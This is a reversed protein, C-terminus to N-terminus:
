AELTKSPNNDVRMIYNGPISVYSSLDIGSNNAPHWMAVSGPTTLAQDYVFIVFTLYGNTATIFQFINQVTGVNNYYSNYSAVFADTASFGAFLGDSWLSIVSAILNFDVTATVRRTLIVTGATTYPIWYINMKLANGNGSNLLQTDGDPNFLVNPAAVGYVPCSFGMSIPGTAGSWTTDGYGTGYNLLLGTSCTVLGFYILLGLFFSKAAKLKLM